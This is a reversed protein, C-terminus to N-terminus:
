GRRKGIILGASFAAFAILALRHEQARSVVERRTAEASPPTAARASAAMEDKKAGVTEKVESAKSAVTAKANDVARHAQGKIDTKAALEAVTDGLEARTREIDERVQEPTRDRETDVEQGAPGQSEGM